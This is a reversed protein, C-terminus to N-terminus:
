EAKKQSSEWKQYDGEADVLDEPKGNRLSELHEKAKSYVMELFHVMDVANQKMTRADLGNRGDATALGQMIGNLAQAKAMGEVIGPLSRCLANVSNALSAIAQAQNEVAVVQREELPAVALTPIEASTYLELSTKNKPTEATAIATGMSDVPYSLAAKAENQSM